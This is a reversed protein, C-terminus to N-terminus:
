AALSKHASGDVAHKMVAQSISPGTLPFFQRASPCETQGGAGCTSNPAPPDITSGSLGPILAAGFQDLDRGRM